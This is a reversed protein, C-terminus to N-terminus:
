GPTSTSRSTTWASGAGSGGRSSRWTPASASSGRRRGGAGGGGGTRGAGDAGRRPGTPSALAVRGGSVHKAWDEHLMSVQRWGIDRAGDPHMATVDPGHSWLERMGSADNAGLTRNIAEYFRSAAVLIDHETTPM